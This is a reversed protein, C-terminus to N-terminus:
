AVTRPSCSNGRNGVRDAVMQPTGGNVDVKKLQGGAVFGVWKGDPSWFPSTAGESGTVRKSELVSMTRIFLHNRGDTGIGSFAIRSGDPSLAFFGGTYSV